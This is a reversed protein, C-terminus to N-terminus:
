GPQGAAPLRCVVSTVSGAAAIAFIGLAICAIYIWFGSLGGALERLAIKWSLRNM